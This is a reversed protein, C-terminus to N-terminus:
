SAFEVESSWCGTTNFRFRNQSTTLSQNSNASATSTTGQTNTHLISEGQTAIPHLLLLFWEWCNPPKCSTRPPSIHKCTPATIHNKFQHHEPGPGHCPGSHNKSYQYQYGFHCTRCGNFCRDGHSASNRWTFIVQHWLIRTSIPLM